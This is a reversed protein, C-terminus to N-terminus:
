GAMETATATQRATAVARMIAQAFREAVDVSVKCGRGGLPTTGTFQVTGGERPAVGISVPGFPPVSLYLVDDPM